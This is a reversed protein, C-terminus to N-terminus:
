EKPPVGQRRVEREAEKRLDKGKEKAEGRIMAKCEECIGGEFVKEKGCVMCRRKTETGM